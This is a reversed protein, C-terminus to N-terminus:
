MQKSKAQHSLSKRKARALWGEPTVLGRYMNPVDVMGAGGQNTRPAPLRKESAVEHIIALPVTFICNPDKTDGQPRPSLVDGLHFLFSRDYDFHGAAPFGGPVFHGEPGGARRDSSRRKWSAIPELCRSSGGAKWNSHEGLENIAGHEDLPGSGAMECLEKIRAKQLVKTGLDAQNQQGIIWSM